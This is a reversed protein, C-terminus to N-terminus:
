GDKRARGAHSLALGIGQAPHRANGLRATTLGHRDRFARVRLDGKSRRDTCAQNSAGVGVLAELDGPRSLGPPPCAIGSKAYCAVQFEYVRELERLRRVLTVGPRRKGARAALITQPTCGLNLAAEQPSWALAGVLMRLRSAWDIM